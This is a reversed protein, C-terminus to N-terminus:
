SRQGMIGTSIAASCNDKGPSSSHPPANDKLSDSQNDTQMKDRKEQSSMDSYSVTM